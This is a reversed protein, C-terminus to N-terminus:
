MADVSVMYLNFKDGVPVFSTAGGAVHLPIPCEEGLLSSFSAIELTLCIFFVLFGNASGAQLFCDFRKRRRGIDRQFCSLAGM